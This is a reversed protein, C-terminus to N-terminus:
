AQVSDIGLCQREREAQPPVMDKVVNQEGMSESQQPAFGAAVLVEADCSYAVVAAATM